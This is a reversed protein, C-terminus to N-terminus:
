KSSKLFLNKAFMKAENSISDGSIIRAIENIREDQNLEKIKSENSKLDKTILFHTDGMSTLQPQHSIVFIQYKTALHKLVKAVSMSEEGSLNADIEDLMLVGNEKDMSEAKLALIALRLRNFEGSSIKDIKTNELGIIIKDEGNQTVNIKEMDFIAPRLYLMTLYENLKNLTPKIYKKRIDTLSKSSNNIEIELLKLKKILESKSYEINQYSELETIKNNRYILCEEISGFRKKLESIDSIRNLVEEIDLNELNELKELANNFVNRVENMAYDFFSTDIELLNLTNTVKKEFNFIEESLIISEKIKEKKSVQKKIESLEEDENLKPNISNIKSIEYEAFEKLESLKKEQSEIESLEKLVNKYEIYIESHKQIKLYHNSDIKNIREDLLSLLSSEEFDRYDKLSLHRINESCIKEITSKSVKQNNIFYSTKDKKLQKFINMDENEIGYIEEDIKWDVESECVNAEVNDLAFSSLVSKMFISKGSGSPGTFVNLGKKFETEVEKFTLFEKLYFRGIM